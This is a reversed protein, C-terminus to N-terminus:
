VAFGARCEWAPQLMEQGVLSALTEKRVAVSVGCTM